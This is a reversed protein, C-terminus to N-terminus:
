RTQGPQPPPEDPIPGLGIVNHAAFELVRRNEFAVWAVFIV